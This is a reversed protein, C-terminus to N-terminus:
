QHTGANAVFLRRGDWALGWPSRLPPGAVTTMTGSALDLAWLAHNGTDAVYLTDGALVMGSPRNLDGAGLRLLEAGDPDLVVVENHGSDGVFIRGDPATAVAGPYRFRHGREPKRRLPLPRPHLLGQARAQGIVQRLALLLGQPEPEGAITGLICGDPGVLVMT